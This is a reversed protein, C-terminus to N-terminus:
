FLEFKVYKEPHKQLDELLLNLQRLTQVLNVYLQKDKLIKGATGNGRLRILLSDTQQLVAVLRQHAVDERLLKGLTGKGSNIQRSIAELNRATQSVTAALATDSVVQGLLGKGREINRMTRSLSNLTATLQTATRPDTIFKGLVGSGNRISGTIAALHETTEQLHEVISESNVLLKDLNVQPAVALYSGEALPEERPNGLSIDVYKDGLIGMTKIRAVSSPTIKDAYERAIKLEVRIDSQNNHETFTIEGVVGVKLGSLTVFAGPLLGEVNPLFIYLSYKSDFWKQNSGVVYLIFAGLGIALLFMSIVAIRLNKEPTNSVM